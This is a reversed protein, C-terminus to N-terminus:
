FSNFHENNLITKQLTILIFLYIIIIITKVYLLDIFIFYKNIFKIILLALYIFM